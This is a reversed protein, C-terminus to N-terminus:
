NGLELQNKVLEYYQGKEYTLERHTGIEVIEGNKLVVIKDANKVTSLRHAVVVVTRGKFFETLNELIIKENNADLSNTAEDFFLIQPDKYIARAILIRQKQGQSLGSGERGIQTHFKLALSDIFPLINAMKAAYRLKELDIDEEGVAINEAISLNFIYGDQMVTGILNRWQQPVITRLERASETDPNEVQIEGKYRDDYFRQLIKLLTTKGSGSMGVIATVKGAPITLNINKLVKEDEESTYGFSLNRIRFGEQSRIPFSSVMQQIEDTEEHIENLRELSIKADQFERLFGTFQEIPSNLAGLIYQIALMSGLTLDGKIVSAAVVATVLLNKGENIFLAGAQQTQTLSLNKFSIKFLGRQLREWQWRFHQEANHMKIEQMGFVLQMTAGNEKVAQNFHKYNLKRRQKLFISIWVVYVASGVIFILFVPISYLLMVVSYIILNIFSFAINISNGTLFQEIRRQDEIRQLVDGTQKSDFYSIPLRMLKKWFDTLLSLNVQTSIYLLIGQRSYEVIFKSILIVFQAILALYVFNLNQVNVGKDVIGQTILPLLLQFLSAALLGLIIQLFYRKHIKLYGFLLDWSVAKEKAEVIEEDQQYFTPTTEFLLATSEHHDGLWCSTFTEKDVQMIGDTSPDAITFKNKGIKFLVIYHNQKWHLICPLPVESLEALPKRVGLTNFGIQEAANSIGLLSVGRKQADCYKRLKVIGHDKGYYKAVIRLCTPGCDMMDTQSFFPFRTKLSSLNDNQKTSQCVEGTQREWTISCAM